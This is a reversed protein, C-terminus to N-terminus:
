NAFPEATLEIQSRGPKPARPSAAGWSTPLIAPYEAEAATDRSMKLAAFVEKSFQRKLSQARAFFLM